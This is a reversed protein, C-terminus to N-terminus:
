FRRSRVAFTKTLESEMFKFQLHKEPFDSEHLLNKTTICWNEGRRELEWATRQLDGM